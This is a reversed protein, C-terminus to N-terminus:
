YGNVSKSIHFFVEGNDNVWGIVVDSNTMGGNPSIGFGVWGNTSVNVGITITEEATSFNWHLTYLPRGNGDTRLVASFPYPNLNSQCCGLSFLALLVVLLSKMENMILAKTDTQSRVRLTHTRTCRAFARACACSLQARPHTLGSVSWQLRRACARRDLLCWAHGFHLSQQIYKVRTIILSCISAITLRSNYFFNLQSSTFYSNSVHLNCLKSKAGQIWQKFSYSM